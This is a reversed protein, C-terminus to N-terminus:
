ADLIGYGDLVAWWSYPFFLSSGVWKNTDPQQAIRLAMDRTNLRKELEELLTVPYGKVSLYAACMWGATGGGVVLIKKNKQM